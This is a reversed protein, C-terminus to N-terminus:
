SDLVGICYVGGTPQPSGGKPELSVAFAAVNAIKNYYQETKNMDIMGVSVMKGDVKAWLQYEKETPASPLNPKFLCIENSKQNWCVLAFGNLGNPDGMMKIGKYDPNSLVQGIRELSESNFNVQQVLSSNNTLAAVLEGQTNKWRNYLYINGLISGLLLLSAAVRLYKSWFLGGREAKMFVQNDAYQSNEEDQIKAWIKDKLGDPPNQSHAFAYGELSKEIAEIEDKIEPHKSIMQEVEVVDKETALGLVYSELIGSSIYEKIEMNKSKAVKLYM